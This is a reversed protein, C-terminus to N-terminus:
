DLDSVSIHGAADRTIHLPHGGYLRATTSSGYISTIRKVYNQTESYHPVGRNKRVARTGANYAALSLELNGNYADLLKKFHRVGADVNQAPDYPNTVNLSKATSPMLQMLGIAGKRSVARPNFNSEVQIMARVLNPDVSHRLSAQEVLSDIWASEPTPPMQFGRIHAKAATNQGNLSALTLGNQEAAFQPNRRAAERILRRVETAASQAQRHLNSNAPPVPKWVRETNSWYVLGTSKKVSEAPTSPKDPANEYVIRGDDTHTAVIGQAHAASQLGILFLSSYLVSLLRKQLPM